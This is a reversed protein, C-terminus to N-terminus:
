LVKEMGKSGDGALSVNQGTDSSILKGNKQRRGGGFLGMTEALSDLLDALL